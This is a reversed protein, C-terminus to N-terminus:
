TLQYQKKINYIIKNTLHGGTVILLIGLVFLSCAILLGYQIQFYDKSIMLLGYWGILISNNMRFTIELALFREDGIKRFYLWVIM